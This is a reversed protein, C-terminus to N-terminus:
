VQSNLNVIQAILKYIETVAKTLEKTNHKQETLTKQIEKLEAEIRDIRKEKKNTFFQFMNNVQVALDAAVTEMELNKM